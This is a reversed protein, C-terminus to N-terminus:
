KEGIALLMKEKAFRVWFRQKTQERDKWKYRDPIICAIIDILFKLKPYNWIFPIQYFLEVKVNKFGYILLLERLSKMTYPQVHTYDIYFDKYCSHWDPTMIIIKGEPKLVRYSERIFNEPDHLHEILSKSFVSDMSNEKYPLQMTEINFGDINKDLGYTILGAESFASLYERNGCGIELINQCYYLYEELLYETLKRVYNINIEPYTVELYKNM